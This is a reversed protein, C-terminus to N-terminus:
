RYRRTPTRYTGTGRQFLVQYNQACSVYSQSACQVGRRIANENHTKQVLGYIATENPDKHPCDLSGSANSIM